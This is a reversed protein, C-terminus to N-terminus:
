LQADFCTPHLCLPVCTGLLQTPVSDQATHQNLTLILSHQQVGHLSPSVQAVRTSAYLLQPVQFSSASYWWFCKSVRLEVFTFSFIQLITM